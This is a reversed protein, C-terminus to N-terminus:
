STKSASGEQLFRITEAFFALIRQYMQVFSQWLEKTAHYRTSMVLREQTKSWALLRTTEEVGQLVFARKSFYSTSAQESNLM